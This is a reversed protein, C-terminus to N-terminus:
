RCDCLGGWVGGFCVCDCRVIDPTLEGGVAWMGDLLARARRWQAAPRARAYAALLANCCVRNPSAKKASISGARALGGSGARALPPQAPAPSTAVLAAALEEAPPLLAAIDVVAAAPGPSGLRASAAASGGGNGCPSPLPAAPACAGGGGSLAGLAAASFAGCMSAAAAGGAGCPTADDMASLLPALSPDGCYM